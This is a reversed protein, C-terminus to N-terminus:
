GYAMPAIRPVLHAVRTTENRIPRSYLPSTQKTPTPDTLRDPLLAQSFPDLYTYHGVCTNWKLPPIPPSYV